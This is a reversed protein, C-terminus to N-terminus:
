KVADDKTKAYELYDVLAERSLSEATPKDFGEGIRKAEDIVAQVLEETTRPDDMLGLPDQGEAQGENLMDRQDADPKILGMSETYEEIDDPMVLLVPTGRADSLAHLQEDGVIELTAVIRKDMTVKTLISRATPVGNALIIAYGERLEHEIRRGLRDLVEAQKAETMKSWVSGKGKAASVDVTNLEDKFQALLRQGINKAHDAMPSTVDAPKNRGGKKSIKKSTPM